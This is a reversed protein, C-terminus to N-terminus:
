VNSCREPMTRADNRADNPCGEPTRVGSLCRKPCRKRALNLAPCSERVQLPGSAGAKRLVRM